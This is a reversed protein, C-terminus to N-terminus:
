VNSRYTVSCCVPMTCRVGRSDVAPQRCVAGHRRPGVGGSVGAATRACVCGACAHQCAGRGAGAPLRRQWRDTLAPQVGVVDLTWVTGDSPGYPLSLRVGVCGCCRAGFDCPLCARPVSQLVPPVCTCRLCCSRHSLGLGQRSTRRHQSMVAEAGTRPVDALPRQAHGRGCPRRHWLLKLCMCRARGRPV